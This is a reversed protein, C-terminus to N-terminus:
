ANALVKQSESPTLSPYWSHDWGPYQLRRLVGFTTFVVVGGENFSLRKRLILSSM